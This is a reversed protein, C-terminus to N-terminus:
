SISPVANGKLIVFSALKDISVDDLFLGEVFVNTLETSSRLSVTKVGFIFSDSAITVTMGSFYKM